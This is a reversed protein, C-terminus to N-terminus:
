ISPYRAQTSYSERSSKRRKLGNISQKAGEFTECVECCRGDGGDCKYCAYYRTVTGDFDIGLQM